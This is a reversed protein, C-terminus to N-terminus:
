SRSNRSTLTSNEESCRRNTRRFMRQAVCIAPRKAPRDIWCSQESTTPSAGPSKKVGFGDQQRNSFRRALKDTRGTRVRLECNAVSACYAPDM